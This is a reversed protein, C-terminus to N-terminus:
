RSVPERCAMGNTSRTDNSHCLGDGVHQLREFHGADHRHRNELVELIFQAPFEQGVADAAHEFTADCFPTGKVALVLLNEETLAMEPAKPNRRTVM